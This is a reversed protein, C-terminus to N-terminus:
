GQGIPATLPIGTRELRELWQSAAGLGLDGLGRVGIEALKTTFVGPKALPKFVGFRDDADLFFNCGQQPYRRRRSTMICAAM